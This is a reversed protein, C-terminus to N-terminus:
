EQPPAGKELLQRLRENERELEERRAQEAKRRAQEAERRAQEAKLEQRLPRTAADIMREQEVAFMDEQTMMQEMEENQQIRNLRRVVKALLPDSEVRQEDFELRHNDDDDKLNQDFVSILREYATAPQGAIKPIQIFYADHTLQEIYPLPDAGLLDEGTVANMYQRRVKVAMPLEASINFGLIYISIIPLPEPKLEGDFEVEERALYKSALYNRFRMLDGGLKAKQLEIIVQKREGNPMRIVACFDLRFVTRRREEANSEDVAAYEQSAFRLSEIEVGLITSLFGRAIDLDEMLAKFVVDYIPNAIKIIM